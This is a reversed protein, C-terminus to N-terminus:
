QRPVPRRARGDVRLRRQRWPAPGPQRGRETVARVDGHDRRHRKRVFLWRSDCNAQRQPPSRPRRYTAAKEGSSFWDIRSIRSLSSCRATGSPIEGPRPAATTIGVSCIRRSSRPMSSPSRTAIGLRGFAAEVLDLAFRPQGPQNTFPPWRTSVLRLQSSQAFVIFSATAIALAVTIRAAVRSFVRWDFSRM